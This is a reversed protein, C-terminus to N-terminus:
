ENILPLSCAIILFVRQNTGLTTSQWRNIAQHSYILKGDGFYNAYYQSKGNAIEMNDCNAYQEIVESHYPIHSGDDTAHNLAPIYNIVKDFVRINKNYPHLKVSSKNIFAYGISNNEYSKYIPIFQEGISSNKLKEYEKNMDVKTEAKSKTLDPESLVSFTFLFLLLGLKKMQIKDGKKAKNKYTLICRM